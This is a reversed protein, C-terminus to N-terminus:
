GWVGPIQAGCSPCCGASIRNSLVHFGMREVLLEGCNHCRTNEGDALRGPLNGAYVYRLGAGLGIDRARLLTEAPTNPTGGMRYDSHFATVHWPIDASVGALFAAIDGLEGDSDNFGPVVLTVVEVWFRMEVLMRITGLSRFLVGGLDRYGRDRFTKLDVKYLDVYPRIYELAERTANGNSVFAGALGADKTRRFLEVAWEATILPENYTSTAVRAGQDLALRAFREPTMEAADTVAGPDRLAQSSIWNQCYGCHFDCGLMGFSAAKAGPYAHFFPKKEIPDIAFGAVYGHPVYLTGQENFRVRCIGRHGPRIRCRHACAHCVVGDEGTKEYLVGERVHRRLVQELQQMAAM